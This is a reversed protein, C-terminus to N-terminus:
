SESYILRFERVLAVKIPFPLFKGHRALFQEADGEEYWQFIRLPHLAGLHVFYRLYLPAMNELNPKMKRSVMSQPSM